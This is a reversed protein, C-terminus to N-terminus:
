SRFAQNQEKFVSDYDSNMRNLRRVGRFESSNKIKNIKWERMKYGVFGRENRAM